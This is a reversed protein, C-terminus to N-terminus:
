LSELHFTGLSTKLLTLLSQFCDKDDDHTNEFSKNKYEYGIFESFLYFSLSTHTSLSLVTLIDIISLDTQLHAM